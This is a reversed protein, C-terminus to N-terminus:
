ELDRSRSAEFSKGMELGSLAPNRSIVAFPAVVAILRDNLLLM